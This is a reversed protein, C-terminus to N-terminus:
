ALQEPAQITSTLMHMEIASLIFTAQQALSHIIAPREDGPTIYLPILVRKDRDMVLRGVSAVATFARRAAPSRALIFGLAEIAINESSPAFHSALHGFLTEAM